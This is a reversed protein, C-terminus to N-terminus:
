ARIMQQQQFLLLYKGFLVVVMVLCFFLPLIARDNSSMLFALVELTAILWYAVLYWYLEALLGNLYHRAEHLNGLKNGRLALGSLSNAFRLKETNYNLLIPKSKASFREESWPFKRANTSLSCIEVDSDNWPAAANKRPEMASECAEITNSINRTLLEPRNDFSIAVHPKRFPVRAGNIFKHRFGAWLLYHTELKRVIAQFVM